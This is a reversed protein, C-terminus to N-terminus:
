LKGQNGTGRISRGLKGMDIQSWAGVAVAHLKKPNEKEAASESAAETRGHLSRASLLLPAAQLRPASSIQRLVNSKTLNANGVPASLRM